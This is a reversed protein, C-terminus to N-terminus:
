MSITTRNDFIYTKRYYCTLIPVLPIIHSDCSVFIDKADPNDLNEIMACQHCYKFMKHYATTAYKEILPNACETVNFLENSNCLITEPNIYIQNDIM